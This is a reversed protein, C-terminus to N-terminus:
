EKWFKKAGTFDEWAEAFRRRANTAEAATWGAVLGAARAKTAADAEALHPILRRAVVADNATGLIDQISKLADVYRRVPKAPFLPRLFEVAYRLRKAEIRLVHLQGADATAAGEAAAVLKRHRKRLLRRAFDLLPSALLAAAEDTPTEPWIDADFWAGLGLALLVFERGTAADAVALAAIDREARAADALQDLVPDREDLAARLPEITGDLWVDWERAEGLLRAFDGLAAGFQRTSFPPLASKFVSLASRLRRLSVRAQHIPEPALASPLLSVTTRVAAAGARGIAVIGQRVTMEPSLAAETGDKWAPTGTALLYGRQAPDASALRLPIAGLLRRALRYIGDPPGGALALDLQLISERGGPAEILASELTVTVQTDEVGIRWQTRVLDIGFLPVLMDGAIEAVTAPDIGPLFALRTVDLAEGDLPGLREVLFRGGAPLMRIERLIQQRRQGHTQTGLAFGLRGIRHQATDWFVQRLRRTVPRRAPQLLLPAERKLTEAATEDLELLLHLPPAATNVPGPPLLSTPFYASAGIESV